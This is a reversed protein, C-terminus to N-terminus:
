NSSVLSEAQEPENHAMTIDMLVDRLSVANGPALLVGVMLSIGLMLVSVVILLQRNDM